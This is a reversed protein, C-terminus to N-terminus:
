RICACVCMCGLAGCVGNGGEGGWVCVKACRLRKGPDFHLLRAILDCAAAPCATPLFRELPPASVPVMLRCTEMDNKSLCQDWKEVSERVEM